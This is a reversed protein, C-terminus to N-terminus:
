VMFRFPKRVQGPLQVEGGQHPRVAQLVEQTRREGGGGGVGREQREEDGGVVGNLRVYLAHM